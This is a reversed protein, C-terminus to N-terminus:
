RAHVKLTHLEAPSNCGSFVLLKERSLNSRYEAPAALYADSERRAGSIRTAVRTRQRRTQRDFFWGQLGSLGRLGEIRSLLIECREPNICSSGWSELHNPNVPGDRLDRDSCRHCWMLSVGM